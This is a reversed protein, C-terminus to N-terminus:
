QDTEKELKIAVELAIKFTEVEQPRINGHINIEELILKCIDLCNM